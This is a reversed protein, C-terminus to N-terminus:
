NKEFTLLDTGGNGGSVDELEIKSSSKQIVHWDDSIDQFDPPSSFTLVLKAQSDDNGDSYTGTVTTGSNVATVTGNSNFTFAYGAFHSTENNGSDSYLTVRWSGQTIISSTSPSSNNDDNKCSAITAAFALLAIWLYNGTKM